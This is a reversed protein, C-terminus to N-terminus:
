ALHSYEVKNLATVRGLPFSVSHGFSELLPRPKGWPTCTVLPKSSHRKYLGGEAREIAVVWKLWRLVGKKRHDVGDACLVLRFDRVKQLECLAELLIHHRSGIEAKNTSLCTSTSPHSVCYGSTMAGIFFPSMLPSPHHYPRCHTDSAQLPLIVLIWPRRLARPRSKSHASHNTTHYILTRLSSDSQLMTLRPVFLKPFHKWGRPDNSYLRLTELTSASADLLLRMGCVYFLDMHRFRFGGFLDMMDELVDVRTFCTMTLRGRLPPASPPVLTLDDALEEQPFDIDDYLLKLDELHHFMGIFFVIQRRSGKPKRLALSLVTPLFHGFYNRIKPMFSPIDLHDIALQQVNTFGSFDRLIRKDFLQLSFNGKWNLVNNGRIEFKRVLHLLGLKSGERFPKPWMHNRYPPFSPIVTTLTFHLRPAAAFYWSRCTLSCACLSAGEYIFPGEYTPLHSLIDDIIEPPLMAARSQSPTDVPRNEKIIFRTSYWARNVLLKTATTLLICHNFSARAVNHLIGSALYKITSSM